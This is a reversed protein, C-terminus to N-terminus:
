GVWYAVILGEGAIGADVAYHSLDLQDTGDATWIEYADSIGGVANPWLEKIVGTLSAGNCTATGFYMKGSLGAIVQV